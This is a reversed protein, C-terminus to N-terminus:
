YPVVVVDGIQTLEYLEAAKDSPLNICGHSGNGQYITGGFYSRWSADHFAFSNNIFPIWYTVYSIYDPEGDGDYDLGTLTQNMAKYSNVAYVGTPTDFGETTDGTVCDSEWILTGDDDYMRVHQETLDVDIYRNGWDRGGSDPTYGTSQRLPIEIQQAAGSEIVEILTTVTEAENTVIGYSGGSVTIVEGDARTYTRETGVTDLAGVYESAWTTMADEDLTASLDDGIVVWEAIQDADIELVVTGELSLTTGAAGLLANAADLADALASDAEDLCDDGIEVETQQALVAQGIVECVKDASLVRLDDVSSGDELVFAAQSSSYTISTSETTTVVEGVASEVIEALSDEDYSLTLEASLDQPSMLYLPWAWASLDATADEVYSTGDVSLDIDAASVTLDLGSGSAHLEYDDLSASKEEAIQEYSLLSVDEGDLTTGPTFVDSFYAVGALYAGAVLVLLVVPILWLWRRRRRGSDGCSSLGDRAGGGKSASTKEVKREKHKSTSQKLHSPM